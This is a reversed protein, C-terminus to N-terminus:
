ERKAVIQVVASLGQHFKGENFNRENERAVIFDLGDLEEKLGALSMFMEKQGAPPGGIGEMTLQKETYCELLFIGNPKLGAVVQRHIKKRIAPPLHVSISIIGDWHESKIKFNELDAQVIEIEVNKQQAFAKAKNLGILSQDVATVQYGLSALYVANRGEGEALCLVRGAPIRLAETVLFENPEMGFAFDDEKYREDWFEKM